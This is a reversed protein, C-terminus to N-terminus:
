LLYQTNRLVSSKIRPKLADKIVLDVKRGFLKELMAKLGMYNDFTKKGKHFEVLIDVDSGSKHTKNVFSGFLGIKRVGYNDMSESHNSLAKLINIKNLVM